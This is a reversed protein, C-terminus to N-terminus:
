KKELGTQMFNQQSNVHAKHLGAWIPELWISFDHLLEFAWYEGLQLIESTMRLDICWQRLEGGIHVSQINHTRHEKSTIFIWDITSFYQFGNRMMEFKNGKKECVTHSILMSLRVDILQRRIRRWPFLPCNLYHNWHFLNHWGISELINLLSRNWWEITLLSTWDCILFSILHLCLWQSDDDGPSLMLRPRPPSCLNYRQIEFNLDVM